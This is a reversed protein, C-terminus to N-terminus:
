GSYAQNKKNIKEIIIVFAGTKSIGWLPNDKQPM